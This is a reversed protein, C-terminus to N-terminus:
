YPKLRLTNPIEFNSLSSEPGTQRLEVSSSVLLDQRYDEDKASSFFFTRGLRITYFIVNHVM